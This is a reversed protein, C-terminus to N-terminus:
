KLFTHLNPKNKLLELSNNCKRIYQFWALPRFIPSAILNWGFAFCFRILYHISNIKPHNFHCNQWTLRSPLDHHRHHYHIRKKIFKIYWTSSHIFSLHFRSLTHTDYIPLHCSQRRRNTHILFNGREMWFAIPRTFRIYFYFDLFFINNSDADVCSFSTLKSLPWFPRFWETSDNSVQFVFPNASIAAFLLPALLSHAPM